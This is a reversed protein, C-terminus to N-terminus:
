KVSKDVGLVDVVFVLTSDGPITSNGEAGYGESPPIVALIRSGVKAGVLAKIFGPILAGDAIQFQAPQGNTWSSDFQAGTAWLFGSYQVTVSDGMAIADGSGDILTNSKFVTPAASKPIAVGPQGSPAAVVTPM